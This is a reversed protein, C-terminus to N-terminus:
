GKAGPAAFAANGQHGIEFMQCLEERGRAPAPVMRMATPTMRCARLVAFSADNGPQAGAEIVDLDMLDFGARLAAPAAERMYGQGHHAAGLWYGFSGRRIDDADRHVVIWGILRRSTKELIAFPLANGARAAMRSAAIREAAMAATFPIPWRAVWRSVEPTMLAATADADEGSVCRLLLRDTEIAPFIATKDM